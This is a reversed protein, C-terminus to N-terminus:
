RLRRKAQQQTTIWFSDDSVWLQSGWPAWDVDITPGPSSLQTIAHDRLLWTRGGHSALDGYANEWEDVDTWETGDFHKLM